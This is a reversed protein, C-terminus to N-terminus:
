KAGAAVRRYLELAKAVNALLWRNPSPAGDIDPAFPEWSIPQGAAAKELAEGSQVEYSPMM